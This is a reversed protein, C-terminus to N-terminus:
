SLIKTTSLRRSYRVLFIYFIGTVVSTLILEFMSSTLLVTFSIAPGGVMMGVLTRLVFYIVANSTVIVASLALAVYWSRNTFVFRFFWYGILTAITGSLLLLGFYGSQMTELAFIMFFAYWVSLGSEAWLIALVIFAFIIHVTNYPYPLIYSMVIHLLVVLILVCVTLFFALIKRLM